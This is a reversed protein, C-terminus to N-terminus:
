RRVMARAHLVARATIWLVPVTMALTLLLAM